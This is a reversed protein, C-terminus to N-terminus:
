EDEPPTWGTEMMARVVPAPAWGAPYTGGFPGRPESTAYQARHPASTPPETGYHHWGIGAVFRIPDGCEACTGQQQAPGWWEPPDSRLPIGRDQM